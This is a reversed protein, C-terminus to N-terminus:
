SSRRASRRRERRALLGTTTEAAVTGVVAGAVLDGPYHVGTHVRSYAVAAALGNLPLAAAPIVRSVGSAFAVAAATHGSPFSRSGPMEVHRDHPVNTGPRDPRRRSGLPKIVLNVLASTVLVSSLGWAAARRGRRRGLGALAVSISISLKSHDAARSLRRMAADLQPTPTDAVAAYLAEDVRAADGIM